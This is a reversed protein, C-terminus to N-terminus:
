GPYPEFTMSEVPCGIVKALKDMSDDDIAV